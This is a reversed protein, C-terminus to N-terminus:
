LLSVTLSLRANAMTDVSVGSEPVFVVCRGHPLLVSISIDAPWHIDDDSGDIAAVM